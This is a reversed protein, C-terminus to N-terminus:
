KVGALAAIIKVNETPNDILSFYQPHYNLIILQIEECPNEMFTINEPHDQLLMFQVEKSPTYNKGFVEEYPFTDDDFPVDERDIVDDMGLHWALAIKSNPYESWLWIKEKVKEYEEEITM